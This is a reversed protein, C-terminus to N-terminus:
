CRVGNYAPIQKPAFAEKRFVWDVHFGDFDNDLDDDSNFHVAMDGFDYDAEFEQSGVDFNHEFDSGDSLDAKAANVM